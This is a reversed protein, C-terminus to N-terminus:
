KEVFKHLFAIHCGLYGSGQWKKPVLELNKKEFDQSNLIKYSLDSNNIYSSFESLLEEPQKSNSRLITVKIAKDLNDLIITLLQSILHKSEEQSHLESEPKLSAFELVLDGTRIGSQFAPSGELVSDVYGFPYDLCESVNCRLNKESKDVPIYTKEKSHIDFLKEEIEKMVNSYDTNLIAIRNRAKRVAYIDIDSRPFGESDVLKGSIGVDPGCSNLFDMLESVEKEIEDKRKALEEM